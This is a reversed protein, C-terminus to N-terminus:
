FDTVLRGDCFVYYETDSFRCGNILDCVAEYEGEPTEYEEPRFKAQRFSLKGPVGIPMVVEWLHYTRTMDDSWKVFSKSINMRKVRM